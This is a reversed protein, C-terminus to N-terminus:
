KSGSRRSKGEEGGWRQERKTKGWYMVRKWKGGKARPTHKNKKRGRKGVQVGEGGGRRGKGKECDGRPNKKRAEGWSRAL